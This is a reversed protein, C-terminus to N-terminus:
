ADEELVDAKENHESDENREPESEDSEMAGVFSPAEAADETGDLKKLLLSKNWSKKFLEQHKTLWSEVRIKHIFHM